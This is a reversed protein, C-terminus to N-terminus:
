DPHPVPFLACVARSTKQSPPIGVEDQGRVMAYGDVGGHQYGMDGWTTRIDLNDSVFPEWPDNPSKPKPTIKSHGGRILKQIAVDQNSELPKSLLFYLELFFIYISYVSSVFNAM